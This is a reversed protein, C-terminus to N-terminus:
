KESNELGIEFYFEVGNEKNQVGYKQNYNNMIAKVLALGIGTGGDDRNRSEDVKYFRRWIRQLNEESINEGTNFVKIRAVNKEENRIIDIKIYKEGNIEKTNKIANTCYNTIVQEIYFRDAYVMVPEKREFIINEIKKDDLMVKSKKIVEDILECIDFCSNDFERNGNELKMLELLKKVLIDMKNAEDLIVEAYYERSEEDSNINEVLGEAYGQILAIPTKLEHSVDSIFQKRMEDVKAKEEIDRELEINTNRLQKITGELKESMLNISTGLENIEDDEDAEKYKKSFDLKSMKDAITNIEVIRETFRKSILSAIIGSIIIAILGVIVLLKNSINVSQEISSITIQIYVKYNNDLKGVLLISNTGGIQTKEIITNEDSYLTTKRSKIGNIKIKLTINDNQTLINAFTDNSTFVLFGEETYISIEFNNRDADKRIQSQATQDIVSNMHKIKEYEEQVDKIKSYTYFTKLLLSNVAILAAIVLFIAVSLTHFLKIRISTFKKEKNDPKSM